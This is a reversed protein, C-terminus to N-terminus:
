SAALVRKVPTENKKSVNRRGRTLYVLMLVIAITLVIATGVVGFLGIFRVDRMQYVPVLETAYRVGENWVVFAGTWIALVPYSLAEIASLGLGIMTGRSRRIRETAIWGFATGIIPGIAAPFLAFIAAMDAILNRPGPTGNVVFDLIVVLQAVLGAGLWWAGDRAQRCLEPEAGRGHSTPSPASTRNTEGRYAQPPDLRILVADVDGLTAHGSSLSDVMELIQTELDDVIGRRKERTEGARRLQDEVADLHADIRARVDAPLPENM